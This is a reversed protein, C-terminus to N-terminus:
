MPVNTRFLSLLTKTSFDTTKFKCLYIVCTSVSIKTACLVLLCTSLYVCGVGGSTSPTGTAVRGILAVEPSVGALVLGSASGAICPQATDVLGGMVRVAPLMVGGCQQRPVSRRERRRGAAAADVDAFYGVLPLRPSVM